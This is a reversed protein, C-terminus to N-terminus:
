PSAPLSYRGLHYATTNMIVGWLFYAACAHCCELSTLSKPQDTQEDGVVLSGMPLIFSSHGDQFNEVKKSQPIKTINCSLSFIFRSCHSDTLTPITCKCLALKCQLYRYVCGCTVRGLAHCLGTAGVVVSSISQRCPFPSYAPWIFQFCMVQAVHQMSRLVQRSVQMQNKNIKGFVSFSVDNIAVLCKSLLFPM